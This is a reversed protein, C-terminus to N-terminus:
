PQDGMARLEEDTYTQLLEAVYDAHCANAATKPEGDRRCWCAIARGRCAIVAAAIAAAFEGHLHMWLWSTYCAIATGRDMGDGIRYPNAIPSAKLRQRPMARGVYIAGPVNDRVHVVRAAEPGPAPTESM